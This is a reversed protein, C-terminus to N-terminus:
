PLVRPEPTSTVSGAAQNIAGTLEAWSLGGVSVYSVRGSPDLVLTVPVPAVSYSKSIVDSPDEVLTLGINLEKFYAAAIGPYENSVMVVAIRDGYATQARQFFPMEDTCPHCWTAWFNIVVVRGRLDSLHQTAHTVPDPIAFDPPPAGYHVTPLGTSATVAALVM